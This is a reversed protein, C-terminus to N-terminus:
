EIALLQSFLVYVASRREVFIVRFGPGSGGPVAQLIM